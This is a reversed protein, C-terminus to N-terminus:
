LLRLHLALTQVHLVHWGILPGNSLHRIDAANAALRETDIEIRLPHRSNAPM